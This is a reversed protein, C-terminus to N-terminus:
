EQIFTKTDINQLAGAIRTLARVQYFQLLFSFQGRAVPDQMINNLHDIVEDNAPETVLREFEAGTFTKAM